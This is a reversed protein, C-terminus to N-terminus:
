KKSEKALDYADYGFGVASLLSALLWPLSASESEPTLFSSGQPEFYIIAYIITVSLLM